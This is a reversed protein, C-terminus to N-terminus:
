PDAETKKSEATCHTASLPKYLYHLRISSYSNEHYGTSVHCHKASVGRFGTIIFIICNGNSHFTAMFHYTKINDVSNKLRLSKSYKQTWHIGVGVSVRTVDFRKKGYGNIKVDTNKNTYVSSRGFCLVAPRLYFVYLTYLTKAINSINKNTGSTM